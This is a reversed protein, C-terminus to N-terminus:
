IYYYVKQAQFVPNLGEMLILVKQNETLSQQLLESLALLELLSQVSAAKVRRRLFLQYLNTSQVEIGSHCLAM